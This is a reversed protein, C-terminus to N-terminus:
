FVSWAFVSQGLVRKGGFRQALLGAVFMFLLYGVFFAALVSGKQTQSWGFQEKMAVAAVSINVRDTYAIVCALFTLAVLIHRRPWRAFLGRRAIASGTEAM